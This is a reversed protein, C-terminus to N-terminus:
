FVRYGRFRGLWWGHGKANAGSNRHAGSPTRWGLLRRSAPTATPNASPSSTFRITRRDLRTKETGPFRHHRVERLTRRDIRPKRARASQVANMKREPDAKTVHARPDFVGRSACAACCTAAIEAFQGLGKGSNEHANEARQVHPEWAALLRDKVGWMSSPRQAEEGGQRSRGEGLVKAVQGRARASPAAGLFRRTEM